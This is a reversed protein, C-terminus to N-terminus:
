KLRSLADSIAEKVYADGESALAKKLSASAGTAAKGMRVLLKLADLKQEKSGSGVIELVYPTASEGIRLFAEAAADRVDSYSHRMGAAILSLSTQDAAGINALIDYCQMQLNPSGMGDISGDGIFGLVKDVSPAAPAARAGMAQLMSGWSRRAEIDDGLILGHVIDDFAPVLGPCDIGYHLCLLIREDKNYPVLPIAQALLPGCRRAFDRAYTEGGETRDLTSFFSYLEEAFGKEPGIANANDAIRALLESKPGPATEASFRGKLPSALSALKDKPVAPAYADYAALFAATDDKLAALIELLARSYEIGVPKGMRGARVEAMIAATRAALKAKPQAAGGGPLLVYKLIVHYYGTASMARAAALAASFEEDDITGDRGLYKLVSILAYTDEDSDILSAQSMGSVLFARYAASDKAYRLFTESVLEHVPAFLGFLPYKAATAAATALEQATSLRSLAAKMEEVAAKLRDADPVPAATPPTAATGEPFFGRVSDDISLSLARSFLVEGTVVSVLRAGIAVAQGVRSYSGTFVADLPALEGLRMAGEGTVAGSADLEAEALLDALRQREFIRLSPASAKVAVALHDSFFLGFGEAASVDAASADTAALPLFAVRLPKAAAESSALDAAIGAIAREFTQPVQAGAGSALCASLAIAIATAPSLRRM